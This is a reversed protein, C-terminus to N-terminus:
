CQSIKVKSHSDFINVQTRRELFTLREWLPYELKYLGKLNNFKANAKCFETGDVFGTTIIRANKMQKEFHSKIEACGYKWERAFAELDYILYIM